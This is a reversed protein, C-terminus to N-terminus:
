ESIHLTVRYAGRVGPWLKETDDEEFSERFVRDLRKEQHVQSSHNLRRASTSLAQKGSQHTLLQTKFSHLLSDMMVVTHASAWWFLVTKFNM